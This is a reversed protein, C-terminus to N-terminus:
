GETEKSLVNHKNSQKTSFIELNKLQDSLFDIIKSLVNLNKSM